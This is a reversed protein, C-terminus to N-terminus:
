RLHNITGSRPAKSKHQIMEGTSVNFKFEHKTGDNIVEVECILVGNKLEFEIAKVYGGGARAIAAEAFRTATASTVQITIGTVTRNAERSTHKTLEGTVACLKIKHKRANHYIELEYIPNGNKLEWEVEMVSGGGVANRAIEMAREFTIQTGGMVVAQATVAAGFVLIFALTISLIAKKRM